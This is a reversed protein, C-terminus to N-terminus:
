VAPLSSPRRLTLLLGKISRPPLLVSGCHPVPPVPSAGHPPRQASSGLRSWHRRSSAGPGRGSDHSSAVCSCEHRRPPGRCKAAEASRRHTRHTNVNMRPLVAFRQERRTTLVFHKQQLFLFSEPIRSTVFANTTLFWRLM